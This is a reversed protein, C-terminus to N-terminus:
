VQDWENVPFAAEISRMGASINTISPAKISVPERHMLFSLATGQSCLQYLLNLEHGPSELFCMLSGTPKPGM